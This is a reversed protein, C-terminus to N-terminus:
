GNLADLYQHIVTEPLFPRLCEAPAPQRPNNLSDLIADSMARSDGVPVLRGFTGDHLIERPGSPCDTSVVQAGSALAEILVGPLGEYKSALVFVGSQRMYAYPNAVFGPLQVDQQLGLERVLAELQPRDPGEGLLVLRAPRVKRVAAFARILTAFDKQPGLRGAGLVVPPEDQAFWPHDLVENAQELLEPTIVPNHIVRVLDRSLGLKETLDDAVGQSVAVVSDAWRYYRKSLSPLARQRRSRSTKSSVSLTNRESVVLRTSGGALKRAWLAILNVYDLASLMAVPRERRLYRVLAPLALLVRRAKLDVVSVGPPIEKMFPGTARALVLDVSHGAEVIGSAIKLMARQAGGGQM